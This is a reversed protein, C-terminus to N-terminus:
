ASLSPAASLQEIRATLAARTTALDENLDNRAFSADLERAVAELKLRLGRPNDGPAQSLLEAASQVIRRARSAASASAEETAATLAANDSRELLGHLLERGRIQAEITPLAYLLPWLDATTAGTRGALTAAAAILRQTKVIRRDSLGVGANRLTRLADALPGRVGDLDVASSGARLVDLMQLSGNAPQEQDGLAGQELLTELLNDAIPEVFVRLLFRDAFAALNTDTPLANSAGVCVRLPVQIATSGHRFRRENLITLLNNLIATSGLFVEDLFAIDCAPLMGETRVEVRGDRLANLDVPGFVESPETFRSLLYEFYSGGLQSAVRRVAASKATGPPGIILVHESAVAALLVLEVLVRREVLGVAAADIAGRAQERAQSLGDLDM